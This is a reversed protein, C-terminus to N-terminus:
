AVDEEEEEEELEPGEEVEVPKVSNPDSALWLEKVPRRRKDLVEDPKFCRIMGCKARGGYAEIYEYGNVQRVFRKFKFTARPCRAVRITDGVSLGCWEPSDVLRAMAPTATTRVASLRRGKNMGPREVPEDATIVPEDVDDDGLVPSGDGHLQLELAQAIDAWEAPTAPKGHGRKIAYARGGKTTKLRAAFDGFSEKRAKLILDIDVKM